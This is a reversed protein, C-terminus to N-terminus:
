IMAKAEPARPNIIEQDPDFGLRQVKEMSKYDKLLKAASQGYVRESKLGDREDNGIVNHCFPKLLNWCKVRNEMNEVANLGYESIIFFEINNKICYGITAKHKCETKEDKYIKFTYVGVEVIIKSGDEITILFDPIYSRKKGKYTYPIRLSEYEYNIISSINEIIEFFRLEYSSRYNFEKKLRDSYFKGYNYKIKGNMILDTMIKSKKESLKIIDKKSRRNKGWAPNNDGTKDESMFPTIIEGSAIKRKRTKSMKRKSEESYRKGTQSIKSKEGIRKRIDPDYRDTNPFMEKYEVITMDHM